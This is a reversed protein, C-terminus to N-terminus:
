ASKVEGNLFKFLCRLKLNVGKNWPKQGKHSKSSKMLTEKTRVYKGNVPHFNNNHCTQCVVILNRYHNNKNNHDLHHVHLDIKGNPKEIGCHHCKWEYYKKAIALYEKRNNKQGVKKGHIYAPNKKGKSANQFKHINQNIGLKVQENFTRLLINMLKLRKKIVGTTTNMKKAIYSFSKKEKVYLEKIKDLDFYRWAHNKEGTQDKVM